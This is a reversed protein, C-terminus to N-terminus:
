PNNKAKKQCTHLTFPNTHKHLTFSRLQHPKALTGPGPGIGWRAGDTSVRENPPIHGAVTAQVIETYKKDILELNATWNPEM